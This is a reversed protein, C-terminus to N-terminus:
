LHHCHNRNFKGQPLFLWTKRKLTITSQLSDDQYYIEQLSFLSSIYDSFACSTKLSGEIDLYTSIGLMQFQYRKIFHTRNTIKRM